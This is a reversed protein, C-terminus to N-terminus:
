ASVTDIAAVLPRGNAVYALMLDSGHIPEGNTGTRVFTSHEYPNYTAFSVRAAQGNSLEEYCVLIGVMYAHVNKRRERLVRQRGAESVRYSVARMALSTAHAIVRGNVQVSFCKRHFNWYVKAKVM